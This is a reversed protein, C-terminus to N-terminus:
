AAALGSRRWADEFAQDAQSAPMGSFVVWPESERPPRPWYRLNQPTLLELRRAKEKVRWGAPVDLEVHAQAKLWAGDTHCCVLREGAVMILDYLRARVRGSVTEALDHAAPPMWFRPLVRFSAAVHAGKSRISREGMLRWDMCFRGWLANGTTKALLGALGPLERGDCVAGWWYAFPTSDGALHAWCGLLREIRAGHKVAMEVEQWTWVGQLRTGAPYHAGLLLSGLYGSPSARPRKPLPGYPLDPIRVSARVFVCRGERAWWDPDHKVPANLTNLWRGGYRLGGIEAAYAAPLDLHQLMGEFRGAGGPGLEQRGGVTFAVPPAEGVTTWLPQNLTARLLSWASSGTTGLPAARYSALWDRWSALARLGERPDEPFPLKIVNVDSPRRVWGAEFSRHRWRIEERNWCLAEGRGEDLLDRATDYSCWVRVGPPFDDLDVSAGHEDLVTGDPSLLAVSPAVPHLRYPSIM